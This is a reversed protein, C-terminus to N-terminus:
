SVKRGAYNKKLLFLDKKTEILQEQLEQIKQDKITDITDITDTFRKSVQEGTWDLYEESPDAWPELGLSIRAPEIVDMLTDNDLWQDPKSVIAPRGFVVSLGPLKKAFAYSLDLLQLEHPEQDGLVAKKCIAELDALLDPKKLLKCSLRDTESLFLDDEPVLESIKQVVERDGAGLASLFLDSLHETAFEEKGPRRQLEFFCKM